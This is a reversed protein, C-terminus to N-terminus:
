ADRGAAPGDAGGARVKERLREYAVLLRPGAHEWSLAEEFRRRGAAAMRDRREEDHLLERITAALSAPTAEDAYAVADGGTVRNETLGFAVCCTGLAMYEVIKNMTSIDNFPSPPDPAVCVDAARLAPEFEASTQYGPMDVRGDIGLSSALAKVQDFSEGDGALYLLVDEGQGILIAVARVLLEVGDQKGMVGLYGVLHRHGRRDYAAAGGAAPPFEDRLPGSRVVVVDEPRKGGRGLALRRYSDNPTIVVDALRYTCREAWAVVREPLGRRVQGDRKALLIEPNADHQDFVFAVGLPRFVRGITFFLDPPNCAHIVDFPRRRWVEVALWLTWLLMFPYERLYGALSGASPPTPYRHIRVGDIKAYPERDHRKGRPCIVSVDYGAAVLTGCEHWVRRDFPVSLNEVLILIHRPDRV